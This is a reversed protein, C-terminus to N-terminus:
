VACDRVYNIRHQSKHPLGCSAAFIAVSILEAPAQEAVTEIILSCDGLLGKIAAEIATDTTKNFASILASASFRSYLTDSVANVGQRIINRDGAVDKMAEGWFTSEVYNTGTTSWSKGASPKSPDQAAVDTHRGIGAGKRAQKDVLYQSEGRIFKAVSKQRPTYVWYEVEYSNEKGSFTVSVSNTPWAKPVLGESIRFQMGCRFRVVLFDPIPEIKPKEDDLGDPLITKHTTVTLENIGQISLTVQHSVRAGDVSKHAGIAWPVEDGNPILERRLLCAAKTHNQLRRFYSKFINVASPQSLSTREDFQPM